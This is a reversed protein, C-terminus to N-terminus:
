KVFTKRLLGVIAMLIGGGVGGGATSLVITGVDLSDGPLATGALQQLVSGGLGGGIVGVISNLTPGLSLHKFLDGAINAGLAGSILQIFLVVINM